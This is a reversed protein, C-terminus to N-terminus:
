NMFISTDGHITIAAPCDCYSLHKMRNFDETSKEVCEKDCGWAVYRARVERIFDHKFIHKINHKQSHMEHNVSHHIERSMKRVARKAQRAHHVLSDFDQENQHRDYNLECKSAEACKGM